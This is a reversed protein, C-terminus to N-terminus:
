RFGKSPQEVGNVGNVLTFALLSQPCGPVWDKIRNPCRDLWYWTMWKVTKM